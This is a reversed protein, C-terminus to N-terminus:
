LLKAAIPSRVIMVTCKAHRSLAAATSGLLFTAMSRRHAGVIILDARWEEAEALLEPYVGGIRVATTIRGRPRDLKEAMADLETKEYIGIDDYVSQPIIAMPSAPIIPSAIHILRLDSDFAKALAMASQLAEAAVEGERVDIPVLIRKYM